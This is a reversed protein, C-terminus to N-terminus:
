GGGGYQAGNIAGPILDWWVSGDVPTNDIRVEFHLHRGTSRGTNGEFGIFEGVKVEQGVEVVFDELHAYMVTMNDAVTPAIVIYNGYGANDRHTHIVVGDSVAYLPAGDKTDSVVDWGDHQKLEGTIPDIRIGFNSTIYYATQGFPSVFSGVGAIELSSGTIPIVSVLLILAIIPVAAIFGATSAIAVIAAKLAAATRRIITVTVRVGQKEMAKAATQSVKQATKRIAKSSLIKEKINQMLVRKKMEYVRDYARRRVNLPSFATRTKIPKQMAKKFVKEEAKGIAKSKLGKGRQRISGMEDFMHEAGYMLKDSDTDAAKLAESAGYVSGRMGASKIEKLLRPGYKRTKMAAVDRVKLKDM